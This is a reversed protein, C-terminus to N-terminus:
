GTQARPRQQHQRMAKELADIRVNLPGIEKHVTEVRRSLSSLADKLGAIEAQLGEQTLLAPTGPGGPPFVADELKQVRQTIADREMSINKIAQGLEERKVYSAKEQESMIADGILLVNSVLVLVFVLGQSFSERRATRLRLDTRGDSIAKEKAEPNRNDKFDAEIKRRARDHSHKLWLGHVYGLALVLLAVSNGIIGFSQLTM